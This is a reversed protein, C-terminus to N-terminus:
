FLADQEIKGEKKLPNKDAQNPLWEAMKLANKIKCGAPRVRRAVGQLGGWAPRVKCAVQLFSAGRAATRLVFKNKDPCKVVSKSKPRRGLGVRRKRM